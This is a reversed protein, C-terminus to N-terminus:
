NKSLEKPADSTMGNFIMIRDAVFQLRNWNRSQIADIDKDPDFLLNGEEDVMSLAILRAFFAFANENTLKGEGFQRVIDLREGASLARIRVTGWKDVEFEDFDWDMAALIDSKRALAM